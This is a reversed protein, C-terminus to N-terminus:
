RRKRSVYRGILVGAAIAGAVVLQVAGGSVDDLSDEGLEDTPEEKIKKYAEEITMSGLDVNYEAFVAALEEPSNVKDLAEMLKEDVM